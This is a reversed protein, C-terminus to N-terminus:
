PRERPVCAMRYTARGCVWVCSPQETGCVRVDLATADTGVYGALERKGSDGSCGVVGVAVGVLGGDDAVFWRGSSALERWKQEDYTSERHLTSTFADPSDTLSRLRIARIDRWNESGIAYIEIM